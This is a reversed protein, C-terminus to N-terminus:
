KSEIIHYRIQRFESVGDNRFISLGGERPMADNATLLTKGDVKISLKKEVASFEADIEAPRNWGDKTALVIPKGDVYKLIALKRLFFLAEVFNGKDRHRLVLAELDNNGQGRVYKLKARLAVNRAKVRPLALFDRDLTIVGNKFTARGHVGKVGGAKKFVTVWETQDRGSSQKDGVMAVRLSTEGGRKIWSEPSTFRKGSAKETVDIEHNGSKLKQSSVRLKYEQGTEGDRIMVRGKEIPAESKNDGDTEIILQGEDAAARIGQLAILFVFCVLGAVIWIRRYKNVSLRAKDNSSLHPEAVQDPVALQSTSLRSDGSPYESLSAGADIRCPRSRWPKWIQPGTPSGNVPEPPSVRREVDVEALKTCRRLVIDRSCLYKSSGTRPM